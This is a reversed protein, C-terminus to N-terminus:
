EAMLQDLSEKFSPNKLSIDQAIARAIDRIEWQAAPKLRDGMFGSVINWANLKILSCIETAHPIVGIAESKPIGSGVMAEYLDFSRNCTDQFATFYSSNRITEPVVIEGRQAASYISEYIQPITDHRELQHLANLSMKAVYGTINGVSNSLSLMAKKALDKGRAFEIMESTLPISVLIPKSLSLNSLYKSLKDDESIFIHAMGPFKGQAIFAEVNKPAYLTEYRKELQTFTLKLTRTLLEPIWTNDEPDYAAKLGTFSAFNGHGHLYKAAVLLPHIFRADERPIQNASHPETMQMYIGFSDQFLQLVQDEFETGSIAAPMFYEGSRNEEGSRTYRLSTQLFKTFDDACLGLTVLRPAVVEIGHPAQYFVSTHGGEACAFFLKELVAKREESSIGKLEKEYIEYPGLQSRSYATRATGFTIEEVGYDPNEQNQAGWRLNAEPERIIIERGV